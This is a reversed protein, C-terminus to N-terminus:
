FVKDPRTAAGPGLSTLHSQLLNAASAQARATLNGFAEGMWYCRNSGANDGQPLAPILLEMKCFPFYLSLSSVYGPPYAVSCALARGPSLVRPRTSKGHSCLQGVGGRRELWRSM